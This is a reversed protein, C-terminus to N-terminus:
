GNVAFPLLLLVVASGVLLIPNSIFYGFTCLLGGSIMPVFRGQKKGYVYYAFGISSFLLSLWLQTGSEM